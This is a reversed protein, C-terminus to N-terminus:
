WYRWLVLSSGDSASAAASPRRKRELRTAIRRHARLASRCPSRPSAPCVAMDPPPPHRGRRRNRQPGNGLPPRPRDAPHGRSPVAMTMADGLPAPEPTRPGSGARPPPSRDETGAPPVRGISRPVTAIESDRLIKSAQHQEPATLAAYAAAALDAATRYRAEPKKAMGTAIVHDLAPPIRGPRIRSPQPPPDMLHATILREISGTRYPYSGTLCEHLVCALSYIDASHTIEDRTFREPAMYHYTGVMAGPQTLGADTAARAIGFDVLYAFDDDTVLINEPKVDRHIVGARHAADLAAAIQRVIAVARAPNLPGYHTLMSRLDTGEILRMDVYFQGDIDGYDHIPVIHPERKMRERFATNSSLQESMLKLAVVRHKRTDEAKYVEGMAGRGLLSILQYYGFQSGARSDPETDSV